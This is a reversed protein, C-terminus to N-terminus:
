RSSGVGSGNGEGSGGGVPFAVVVSPDAPPPQAVGSGAWPFAASPSAQARHILLLPYVVALNVRRFRWWQRRRRILRGFVGGGGVGCSGSAPAASVVAVAKVPDVWRFHWRWRHIQPLPSLFASDPGCSSSVGNGGRPSSLPSQTLPPSLRTLTPCRIILDGGTM